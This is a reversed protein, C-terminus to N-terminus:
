VVSKRDPFAIEAAIFLILLFGLITSIFVLVGREKNKIITVLGVIFASTGSAFGALMTLAVGPRATIDKPISEGASIGEYFNVMSSGIAFLIPTAIILGISWIGTKTKPLIKM